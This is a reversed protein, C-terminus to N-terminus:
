DTLSESMLYFNWPRQFALMPWITVGVPFFRMVVHADHFLSMVFHMIIAFAVKVASRDLCNSIKCAFSAIKKLTTIM